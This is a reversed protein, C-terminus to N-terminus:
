IIIGRMGHAAAQLCSVLGFLEEIFAVFAIDDTNAKKLARRRGDVVEDATMMKGGLESM